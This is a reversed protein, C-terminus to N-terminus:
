VLITTEEGKQPHTFRLESCRLYYGCEAREGYLYDGLLPHGIHAFHVRIQHTRGTHLIVDCLANNDKIEKIFYETVASKGDPAVIRKMSGEAERRIPADIIGHDTKPIGSVLAEYRKYMRGQARPRARKLTVSEDAFIESIKLEAAKAGFKQEANAIAANLNKEVVRAAFYPM